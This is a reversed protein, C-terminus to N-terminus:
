IKLIHTQRSDRKTQNLPKFPRSDTHTRHIESSIRKNIYTYKISHPIAKPQNLTLLPKFVNSYFKHQLLLKTCKCSITEIHTETQEINALLPARMNAHTEIRFSFSYINNYLDLYLLQYNKISFTPLKKMAGPCEKFGM